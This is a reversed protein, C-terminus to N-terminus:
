HILVNAYPLPELFKIVTESDAKPRFPRTFDNQDIGEGWGPKNLESPSSRPSAKGKRAAALKKAPRRAGNADDVPPRAGLKKSVPAAPKKLGLKKKAPPTPAAAKRKLTPM